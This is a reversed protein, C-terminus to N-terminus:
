EISVPTGKPLLLAIEAIHAPALGVGGGPPRHVPASSDDPQTYFSCNPINFIIQHSATMFEADTAKVMGKEGFARKEVLKGAQKPLLPKKPAGTGAMIPYQRFFKGGKNLVVRHKKQNILVSFDCPVVLLKQGAFIMGTNLHNLYNFLELTMRKQIIIRTPSDGTKVLYWDKGEGPERAFLLAANVEGLLDLGETLKPSSAYQASFIELAKKAGLLDGAKKLEVCQSLVKIAPDPPPIPPPLKAQERLEREPALYLRDIAVYAGGFVAVALALIILLRIILGM